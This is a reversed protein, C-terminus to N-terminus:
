YARTGIRLDNSNLLKRLKMVAQAHLQCVRSESISIIEGIEKLTMNEHYYLALIIKEREPLKELAMALAKKVDLSELEISPDRMRPDELTDIIEFTECGLERYDHISVISSAEIQDLTTQVKEKTMDLKRAVEEITPTRGLKLQLDSTIKQINKFRRRVGRPVWDSERLKDIVSGRIRTLAYTEFRVGRSPIFREIADMLGEVGYSFIDDPSISPPFGVKLRNVVYAVLCVYQIIFKDRIKKDSKNEAYQEWLKELDADSLKKSKKIEDANIGTSTYM